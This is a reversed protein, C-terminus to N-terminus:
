EIVWERLRKIYKAYLVQLDRVVWALIVQNLWETIKVLRAYIVGPARGRGQHVFSAPNKIPSQTLVFRASTSSGGVLSGAAPASPVLRPIASFSEGRAKTPLKNTPMPDAGELMGNSNQRQGFYNSRRRAKKDAAAASISANSSKRESNISSMSPESALTTHPMSPSAASISGSDGHGRTHTHKGTLSVPSQPVDTFWGAMEADGAIRSFYHMISELVMAAEFFRQLAAVYASTDDLKEKQINSYIRDVSKGLKGLGKFRANGMQDKNLMDRNLNTSSTAGNFMASNPTDPVARPDSLRTDMPDGGPSLPSVPVGNASPIDTSSLTLNPFSANAINSGDHPGAYAPMFPLHSVSAQLNESSGAALGQSPATGNGVAANAHTAQGVFKLKKGLLRRSNDLTDELSNLWHHLAVCSKHLEDREQNNRGRNEESEWPVTEARREDPKPLASSLLQNIDPLTLLSSISAFSQTLQALVGLKVDIAAIRIGPQYWMRRPIFMSATLYAGSSVMSRHLTNIFWLSSLPSSKPPPPGLDVHFTGFSPDFMESRQDEEVDVLTPRGYLHSMSVSALGNSSIGNSPIASYPMVVNGRAFTQSATTAISSKRSRTAEDFGATLPASPMPADEPVFSLMDAASKTAIKLAPRASQPPPPPQKRRLKDDVRSVGTSHTSAADSVSGGRGIRGSSEFAREGAGESGDGPAEGYGAPHNNASMSPRLTPPAPMPPLVGRETAAFVALAPQDSNAAAAAAEFLNPTSASASLRRDKPLIRPSQVLGVSVKGNEGAYKPPLAPSPIDPVSPKRKFLGALRHAANSQRKQERTLTQSASKAPTPPGDKAPTPPPIDSYEPTHHVAPQHGYVDLEAPKRDASPFDTTTPGSQQIDDANAPMPYNTDTDESNGRSTSLRDPHSDSNAASRLAGFLRRSLKPGNSDLIPIPPVPPPAKNDGKTKLGFMAPLSRQSKISQRRSAKESDKGKRKSKGGKDGASEPAAASFGNDVGETTQASELTDDRGPSAPPHSNSAISANDATAHSMQSTSGVSANSALSYKRLMSRAGESDLVPPLPKNTDMPSGSREDSDTGLGLAPPLDVTLMASNTDLPSIPVTGRDSAPTGLTRDPIPIPSVVARAASEPLEDLPTQLSADGNVGAAQEATHHRAPYRDDTNSSQSHTIPSHPPASSQSAFGPRASDEDPQQLQANSSSDGPQDAVNPRLSSLVSVRDSYTQRFHLLRQRGDEENTRNLVLGLMSIAERYTRIAEDVHGGNDLTVATQAKRLALTLLFRFSRTNNGNGAIGSQDVATSESAATSEADHRSAALPQDAHDLTSDTGTTLPRMPM